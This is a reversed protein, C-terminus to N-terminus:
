LYLLPSRSNSSRCRCGTLPRLIPLLSVQCLEIPTERGSRLSDCRNISTALSHFRETSPCPKIRFIKSSGTSPKPCNPPQCLCIKGNPVGASKRLSSVYHPHFNVCQSYRGGLSICTSYCIADSLNAPWLSAPGVWNLPWCKRGCVGTWLFAHAAAACASLVAFEIVLTFTIQATIHCHSHPHIMM